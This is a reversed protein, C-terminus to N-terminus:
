SAFFRAKKNAAEPKAEPAPVRARSSPSLGFQAAFKGMREAASNKVAVWPSVCCYGKDTEFTHGSKKLRKKAEVFEAFAECYAALMSRDADRLLGSAALIPAVRQWEKKELGVLFPPPSLDADGFDVKKSHRDKRFTGQAEHLAIPKPPRGAPM